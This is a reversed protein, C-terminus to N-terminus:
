SPTNGAYKHHFRDQYLNQIRHLKESERVLLVDGDREGVFKFCLIVIWGAHDLTSLMNAQRALLMLHFRVVAVQGGSSAHPIDPLHTQQICSKETYVRNTSFSSTADSTVRLNVAHLCLAPLLVLRAKFGM